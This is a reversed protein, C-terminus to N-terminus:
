RSGPLNHFSVPTHHLEGPVRVTPPRVDDALILDPRGVRSGGDGGVGEVAAVDGDWLVELLLSDLLASRRPLPTASAWASSLVGQPGNLDTIDTSPRTNLLM